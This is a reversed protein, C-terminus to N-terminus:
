KWPRRPPRLDLRLNPSVGGPVTLRTPLEKRRAETRLPMRIPRPKVRYEEMEWDKLKKEEGERRMQEGVGEGRTGYSIERKREERQVKEREERERRERKGRGSKQNKSNIKGSTRKKTTITQIRLHWINTQTARSTALWVNVYSKM